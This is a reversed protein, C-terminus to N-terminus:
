IVARVDACIVKLVIKSRMSKEHIKEGSKQQVLILEKITYSMSNYNLFDHKRTGKCASTFYPLSKFQLFVTPTPM